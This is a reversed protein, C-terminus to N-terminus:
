QLSNELKNKRYILKISFFIILILFSISSIWAGYKFSDPKYEFTLTGRGNDIYVASIINNAKFIQVEENNIAAKWGPYQSYQESLVLFGSEANLKVTAKDSTDYQM